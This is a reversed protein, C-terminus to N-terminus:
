FPMKLQWAIVLPSKEGQSRLQSNIQNKFSERVLHSSFKRPKIQQKWQSENQTMIKLENRMLDPPIM